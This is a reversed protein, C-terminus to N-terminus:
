PAPGRVRLTITVTSPGLDVGHPIRAGFAPVVTGAPPDQAGIAFAGLGRVSSAARLPGVHGIRLCVGSAGQLVSLADLHSRGVVDPVTATGPEVPLAPSGIASGAVM